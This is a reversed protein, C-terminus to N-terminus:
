IAQSNIDIGLDMGLKISNSKEFSEKEQAFPVTGNLLVEVRDFIVSPVRAM